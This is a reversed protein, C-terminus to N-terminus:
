NRNVRHTIRRNTIVTNVRVTLIAEDSIAESCIYSVNTLVVRYRNGNDATSANTITLTNTTTGGHIGVDTLDVWSSGNFLQWQYTDANTAVVTLSTNCGPCVITDVPQTTIVPAGEAEVYDQTGNSGVDAPVPYAAATVRGDADVAPPSGTGYYENDGGDANANAYAENADSCGDGDSDTDIFNAAETGDTDAVTYNITGSEVVTEVVDGLGNAGFPGAIIGATHVQGHGAEVADYIGDNDADLDLHNAIGDSDTDISYNEPNNYNSLCSFEINHQRGGASAGAVRAEGGVRIFVESKSNYNIGFNVQPNTNGAGTYETTGATGIVWSGETTMTLETPNSIIYSTPNNSWAQEAYNANGDIDNFNLFFKNIIVPTTGGSNVFQIRYEVYGRDGINTLNFATQPRFASVDSGNNDVNTPSANVTQEITVLADTGTTVNPIRYVAGQQLATGSELTAAASFDLTTEGTCDQQSNSTITNLEDADTIGDNDDDLDFRDAVGDGDNDPLPLVTLTGSAQGELPINQDNSVDTSLVTNVFAGDTSTVVDFTFTCSSGAALTIGSATFSTAGTPATISGGCSSSANPTPAITMGAPFNDTIAFNTLPVGAAPNNVTISVTSEDGVYVTSSDFDKSAVAPFAIENSIVFTGGWIGELASGLDVGTTTASNPVYGSADFVDVDIGWSYGFNPNRAGVDVGFESITGNLTNNNPNLTNALATGNINIFDGTSSAEGDFGFYGAHTEFVGSAPTLLGTVTFSDNAGFGFFDFGDWVNIRRAKEAPDSYVVVMNWGGYPGTFASGTVLAIDAVAYTGSGAAQVTSTVDAVSMFSNWGGFTATEINRQQATIATYVTAGPEKFKVQDINLTGAPNTIGGYTSNYVGGWYLGAWEVTAGAPINFTSTSSNVTTADADVDAYGMVVGPNNSTPTGPCSAVCQLNTNGRMLFNGLMNEAYREEYPRPTNPDSEDDAITGTATDSIDVSGDSTGTFQITFTEDGEFLFDDPITIVIQETDGLTGDFNLTGTSATYDAPSTASGNTTTYNVTFAGTTSQLTHTATFTATGADEDVSVDDIIITPVLPTIMLDDIGGEIIDGGGNGDTVTVRIVVNSGAPISATAETWAANTTVDGITVLTTYSSGSNLSYELLFLDTADDGNDRQGFFYWISLQSATAINYVPSTTISSGGDVDQNGASSNTATFYANVGPSATHDDELQTTVGSSTELTPNAVVFTGTSATGSTTWGAATGSEFDETVQAMGWYSVMFFLLVFNRIRARM